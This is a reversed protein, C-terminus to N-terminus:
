RVSRYRSSHDDRDGKRTGPWPGRGQEAAHILMQGAWVVANQSDTAEGGTRIAAAESPRM